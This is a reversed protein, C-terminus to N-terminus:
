QQMDSVLRASAALFEPRHEPRRAVQGQIELQRGSEDIVVSDATLPTSPPVLITWASVVTSQQGAIEIQSGIDAVPKQSLRAPTTTTVPASAM